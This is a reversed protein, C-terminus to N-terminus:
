DERTKGKSDTSFGFGEALLRVSPNDFNNMDEGNLWQKRNSYSGKGNCAFPMCWSSNSTAYSPFCLNNRPFPM